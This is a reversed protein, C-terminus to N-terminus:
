KCCVLVSFLTLFSRDKFFIFFLFINIIYFRKLFYVGEKVRRCTQEEVVVVVVVM